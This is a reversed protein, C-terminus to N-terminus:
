VSTWRIILDEVPYESTKIFWAALEKVTSFVPCKEWGFEPLNIRPTYEAGNEKERYLHMAGGGWNGGKFCTITAVTKFGAAIIREPTIDGNGNYPTSVKENQNYLIDLM